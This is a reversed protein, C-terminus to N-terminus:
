QSGGRERGSASRKRATSDAPRRRAPRSAAKSDGDGRPRAPRRERGTGAPRGAGQRAPRSARPRSERERDPAAGDAASDESSPTDADEPDPTDADEPDPADASDADPPAAGRLSASRDHLSGTVADIKRSAATVAATKGAEILRGSLDGTLQGLGASEALRAAPGAAGDQRGGALRKGGAVAALALAWKTKHFRGLVYGTIVATGLTSTKM